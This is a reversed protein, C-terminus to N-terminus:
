PTASNTGIVGNSPDRGPNPIPDGNALGRRKSSCPPPPPPAAYSLDDGDASALFTSPIIVLISFVLIILYRSVMPSKM